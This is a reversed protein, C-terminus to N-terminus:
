QSVKHVNFATVWATADASRSNGVHRNRDVQFTGQFTPKEKFYTLGQPQTTVLGQPLTVYDGVRIDSRMVTTVQVQFPNIWTPQGVLDLFSIPKPSEPSTGDYLVFSGNYLVLDVGTYAGGNPGNVIAASLQKVFGAFQSLTQRVDQVDYPLATDGVQSLSVSYQPFAVSLTNTVAASLSQGKKWDLVINAPNQTTGTGALVILDLTQATGIWNGYGQFIQGQVLLGFQAPNALPLGKAMGGYFQFNKGNFDASAQLDQLPVGWLRFAAGTDSMPDAFTTVPADLELTLAAPDTTGDARLSTYSRFVAGTDPDSIVIRYARM